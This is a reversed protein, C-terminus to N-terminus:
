GTSRSSSLAHDVVARQADDLLPRVDDVLLEFLRVAAELGADNDGVLSGALAARYDDGGAEAITEWLGNESQTEIRLRVALLQALKVASEARLAAADLDRGAERAAVLKVVYEAWGVLQDCVWADAEGAIKDWNWERAERRLEEAVGFPDAVVVADRWGSVSVFATAPTHMRQRADEPTWWHVSVLRGDIMEFRERPGDGVAFLDIDSDPRARGRAHSGTLLTAKAGQELLTATVREVIRSVDPDVDALTAV